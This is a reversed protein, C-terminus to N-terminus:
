ALLVGLSVLFMFVITLQRFRQDSFRAFLKSGAVVGVAFPITLAAATRLVFADLLGAFGLMVLGAASVLVIYLTLNARTVAVPDPGALLYLIVPPGGISTAGLMTGSLAGLGISTRLRHEGHFRRGILLAISFVVVTLAILRRLTGAEVGKLLLGGLPVACVAAAGIPAIVRWRALSTAAPLMTAAAFTELLLAVPVAVRAGMLLALSPTMIMAAGFGTTGRVLGGVLAIALGFSLTRDM